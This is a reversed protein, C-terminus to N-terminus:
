NKVGARLDVVNSASSCNYSRDCAKVYYWYRDGKHVNTDTYAPLRNIAIRKFSQGDSRRYIKYYLVGGEADESPPNDWWLRIKAPPPSTHYDWKKWINPVTPPDTDKAGLMAWKFMHDSYYTSSTPSQRANYSLDAGANNVAGNSWIFDGNATLLVSWVADAMGRGVLASYFPRTRCNWNGDGYCRQANFDGGFVIIHNPGAPASSLNKLKSVVQLSWKKKLRDAITASRLNFNPVHHLSAADVILSGDRRRLSAWAYHKVDIKDGRAAQSRKYSTTVYGGNDTVSMTDTNVLVADEWEKVRRTGGIWFPTQPAARSGIRTVPRTGSYRPM